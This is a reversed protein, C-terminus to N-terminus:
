GPVLGTDCNSACVLGFLSWSNSDYGDCCSVGCRGEVFSSLHLLHGLVYLLHLLVLLGTSYRIWPIRSEHFGGGSFVSGPHRCRSPGFEPVAAIFSAEPVVAWAGDPSHLSTKEQCSVTGTWLLLSGEWSRM